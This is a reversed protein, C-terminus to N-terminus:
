SSTDEVDMMALEDHEQTLQASGSEAGFQTMEKYLMFSEVDGTLTFYKWSFNRM